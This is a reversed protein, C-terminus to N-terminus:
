FPGMAAFVFAVDLADEERTFVLPLFDDCDFDALILASESAAAVLKVQGITPM